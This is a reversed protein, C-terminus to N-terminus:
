EVIFDKFNKKNNLIKFLDLLNNKVIEDDFEITSYGEEPIDLLPFFFTVGGDVLSIYEKEDSTEYALTYLRCDDINSVIHISNKNTTVFKWFDLFRSCGNKHNRDFDNIHM